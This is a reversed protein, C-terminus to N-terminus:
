NTLLKGTEETLVTAKNNEKNLNVITGEKLFLENIRLKPGEREGGLIDEPHISLVSHGQSHPLTGETQM